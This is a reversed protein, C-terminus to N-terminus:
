RAEGLTYGLKRAIPELERVAFTVEDPPLDARWRGIGNTHIATASKVKPDEIGDQREAANWRELMAPEFREGLRECLREVVNAPNTVLEEYRVSSSRDPHTNAYALGHEAFRRYVAVKGAFDAPVAKDFRAEIMSALTDLPHRVVHVFHLREGLLESWRDLYLVNEPNKDAWRRKGLKRAAREHAELFAGGFIEALEADDLGLERVTSFFRVRALDDHLYDGHFDKFFKVEPGAHIASHGDLLRRLLSTGSRYCGGIIIPAGAGGLREPVNRFFAHERWPDSKDWPASPLKRKLERPAPFRLDAATFVARRGHWRREGVEEASYIRHAYKALAHARSLAMYHRLVFSEPFIRRGEFEAFHGGSDRLRVEVGALRKWAKIQRVPYPEFFYYHEMTKPYDTGEFADAADTPLFVFEDFNVANYGARDAAELGEHLTNWPAPAERIEDADHHIFWDADLERALREENELIRYLEFSGRFPLHEIRAVGRGLFSKAIELSRDTSDNDIVCVEVGQSALHALCRELVREEDRITLLGLVNM